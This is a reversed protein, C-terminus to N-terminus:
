VVTSVQAMPATAEAYSLMRALRLSPREIAWWMASAFIICAALSVLWWVAEWIMSRGTVMYGVRFSAGTIPNHILYLSYSIAGLFQLWRWNAATALKDAAGVMYLLAATAVCAADFDNRNLYAIAGIVLGYATFFPLAGRDRWTWYAGVGLLFAHWLPPFLGAPLQPGLGLPWLLSVAMAGVLLVAMQQGQFRKAPDNRGLLLLIAYAFYFQVEYCLTWFVSNIDGYGIIDQLYFLHAIVQAWSHRVLEHDAVVATSLAGFALSLAIAFWYPPDLRLSRRLSFRGLLNLSMRQHYLSHSIVFGSLVFFIPVGLSGHEVPFQLWAPLSAFFATVHHGELAHFLLVGTAAVGRLADVFSLRKIASANTMM